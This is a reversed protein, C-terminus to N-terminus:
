GHRRRRRPRPHRSPRTHGPQPESPLPGRHACLCRLSLCLFVLFSLPTSCSLELSRQRVMRWGNGGVSRLAQARFLNVRDPIAMGVGGFSEHNCFGRIKVHQENLFFGQDGTWRPSYIGVSANYSDGSDTSVRLTYLYPRAVSWLEANRVPISVEASITAAPESASAAAAVAVSASVPAGVAQGTADFLAFSVKATAAASGTNALEATAIVAAAAATQGLAPAGAVQPQIGGTGSVHGHVFVGDTVFHLPPASHLWTKRYIGGGEYFWGSGARPDVYVSLVNEKAEGFHVSTANDLRVAFSTYGGGMGVGGGEGTADGAYGAHERVEEGNLWIKTARFVGEFNIWVVTGEWEAPLKFHKRYFGEERPLYSQGAGGKPRTPGQDSPVDESYVGEVIYDHPLDLLQWDSDEYGPATAAVFASSNPWPFPTDAAAPKPGPPPAPPAKGHRMGGAWTGGGTGTKVHGFGRWCGKHSTKNVDFQWAFCLEKGLACCEAACAEATKGNGHSLGSVWVGSASVPFVAPLDKCEAPTPPPAPPRAPPGPATGPQGLHFRWGYDFSVVEHGAAVAAAPKTATAAMTALAIACLKM